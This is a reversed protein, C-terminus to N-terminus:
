RKSEALLVIDDVIKALAAHAINQPAAPRSWRTLVVKARLDEVSEILVLRGNNSLYRDVAGIEGRFISYVPIGLAAAERNMTGGGSIVLDSHWMLNLGDEPHEPVSLKGAAFWAAWSRQVSVKQKHNRPLVIVQVNPAHGLFEITAAFLEDSKPNHYHAETAPPRVVVVVNREDLQLRAKISPDPKFAPVYVDEKIGPYQLVRHTKRVSQSLHIIEPTMLWTPNIIVLSQSFEYDLICLSPIGLLVSAIVQSRSGHAVALDPRERAMIPLLQLARLCTGLVKLVRHKGWHRGICTYTFRFLDALECVQYADRATLTVSYGRKKLEEVIPAFFPVHPSNDLDIWIRKSALPVPQVAVETPREDVVPNISHKV